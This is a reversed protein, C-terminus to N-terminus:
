QRTGDSGTEKKAATWVTGNPTQTRIVPQKLLQLLTEDDAKQGRSILRVTKDSFFPHNRVYDITYGPREKILCVDGALMARCPDAEIFNGVVKEVQTLRAPLLLILSLSCSAFVFSAMRPHSQETSRILALIGIIVSPWVTMLYRAGWGHGQNFQVFGFYFLCVLGIQLICVQAVPTTRQRWLGALALVTCGPFAWTEHKLIWAYNVLPSKAGTWGSRSLDKLWAGDFFSTLMPTISVPLSHSIHFTIVPWIFVFPIGTLLYGSILYMSKTRDRLISWFVLPLAYLFHPFPNVLALAFGGICGALFLQRRSGLLTLWLVLANSLMVATYGYFSIGSTFFSASGFSIIIIWAGSSNALSQSAFRLSPHRAIQIMVAIFCIALMPNLAEPIDIAEFPIKLLAYSPWYASILTGSNPSAHYFSGWHPLREILPVPWNTWIKGAAFIQSQFAPLFEDMCLPYSHYSFYSALVLSIFGAGLIEKQRTDIIQLIQQLKSTPVVAAAIVALLGCALFLPVFPWDLAIILYQFALYNPAPAEAIKTFTDLAPYVTQISQLAWYSVINALYFLVAAYTAFMGAIETAASLRNIRKM